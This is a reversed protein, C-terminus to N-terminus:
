GINKERGDSEEVLALLGEQVLEDLLNSFDRHLIEEKVDYEELMTHFARRVAGDEALLEWIRTGTEDLGFYHESALDLLVSEGGVKQFMVQDSCRVQLALLDTM